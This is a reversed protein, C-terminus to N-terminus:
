LLARQNQLEDVKVMFRHCYGSCQDRRTTIISRPGVEYGEVPITVNYVRWEFFLGEMSM